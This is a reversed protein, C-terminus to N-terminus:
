VINLKNKYINVNEKGIWEELKLFKPDKYPLQKRHEGTVGARGPLGKIGVFWKTQTLFTTKNCNTHRWLALDFFYEYKFYDLLLNIQPILKKTFCVQSLSSHHINNHINYTFNSINFYPCMAAGILHHKLGEYNLTLFKKVMNEIYFPSYWDDDEMILIIDGSIIKFAEILNLHLTHPRCNLLRVYKEYYIGDNDDYLGYPYRLSWESNPSWFPTRRIVQQNMTCKTPTPYDDVVIWEDPQQTQRSMWLECLEFALPRGGTPTIVSVKM